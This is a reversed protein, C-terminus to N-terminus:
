FYGIVFEAAQHSPPTKTDTGNLQDRIKSLDPNNYNLVAKMIHDATCRQQICEPIIERGMMINVLHAYKVKVLRKMIWWTFPNTKYAIVHPCRAVALELGVTGSTAIAFPAKQFADYRTKPDIYDVNMGFFHEAIEDKLHPLAPIVARLGPNMVTMGRFVESFVPAMRKIEGMRSGPLILIHDDNRPLTTDATIKEVIPHGCFQAKLGHNEFYPPEFPLLCILGDFLEAMTKARGARWAWVTPAVYHIFKTDPCKKRAKRVVRKCFDPSDITVVIDPQTEVIHNVTQNIRKILKPLRPLIEFIGMVSLDTMPFLSKLGENEMADGGIGSFSVNGKEKLATMLRAGLVHGSEEGAIVCIHKSM